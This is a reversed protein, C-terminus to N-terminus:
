NPGEHGSDRRWGGSVNARGFRGAEGTAPSGPRHSAALVRNAEPCRPFKLTPNLYSILTRPRILRVSMDSNSCSWSSAAISGM